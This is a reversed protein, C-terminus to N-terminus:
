TRVRARASAACAVIVRCAVAHPATSRSPELASSTMRYMARKLSADERMRAAIHRGAMRAQERGVETLRLPQRCSLAVLESSSWAISMLRLM